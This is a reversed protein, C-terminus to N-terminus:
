NKTFIFVPEAKYLNGNKKTFTGNSLLLKHTDVLMFGNKSIENVICEEINPFTKVNAINILLKGNSKLARHCNRVTQGIFDSIWSQQTPFKMYSQTQENSYKETNFYPPSTFCLDVSDATPQFEESGFNYLEVTKGEGLDQNMRCLGLFTELCPDTGIYHKVKPCALAGLLRGGYGSSMDYVVNETGILHKDYIACAASPRFNSVSQSGSFLKLIKRIGADSINDGIKIRKRIAKNFLDDNHFIEWPTLMDNCKVKWSHPMYSWALGLGHMTQNITDGVYVTSIDFSKLKDFEDKRYEIDTPFLPFGRVERYYRFVNNVYIDMQEPTFLKWEKKGIFIDTTEM